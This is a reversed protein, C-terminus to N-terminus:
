VNYHLQYYLKYVIYIHFTDKLSNDLKNYAPKYSPLKTAQYKSRARRQEVILCRLQDSVLPYNYKSNHAKDIKTAEWATSKKQMNLNNFTEDIDLNSKLKVKLNIRQNLINQFELRGTLPSFFYIREFVAIFM